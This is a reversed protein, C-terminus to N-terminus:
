VEAMLGISDLINCDFYGVNEWGEDTLVKVAADNIKM